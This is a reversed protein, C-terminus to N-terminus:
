TGVTAACCEVAISLLLQPLYPGRQTSGYGTEVFLRQGGPQAAFHRHCSGSRAALAAYAASLDGCTTYRDAPNKVMGGTRQAGTRMPCGTLPNTANRTV